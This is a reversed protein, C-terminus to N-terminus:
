VRWDGTLSEDYWREVREVNVARPVATVGLASRTGGACCRAKACVRAYADEDARLTVLGCICVTLGIFAACHQDVVVWQRLWFNVLPCILYVGFTLPALAAVASNSNTRWRCALIVLVVGLGYPIGAAAYELWFITWLGKTFRLNCRKRGSGHLIEIM